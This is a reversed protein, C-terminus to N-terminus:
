QPIYVSREPDSLDIEGRANEDLSGSTMVAKFMRLKKDLELASGCSVDIMGRYSFRLDTISSLDIYLVDGLQGTDSM